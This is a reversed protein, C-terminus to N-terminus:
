VQKKFSFCHPQNVTHSCTLSPLCMDENQSAIVDGLQLQGHSTKLTAGWARPNTRVRQHIEEYTIFFFEDEVFDRIKLETSLNLSISLTGRYSNWDFARFTPYTDILYFRHEHIFRRAAADSDIAIMSPWVAWIMIIGVILSLIGWLLTDGGNFDHRYAVITACIVGVAAVTILSLTWM